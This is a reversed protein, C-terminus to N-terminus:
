GSIVLGRVSRPSRTLHREPWELIQRIRLVTWQLAEAMDLRPEMRFFRVTDAVTEPTSTSFYTKKGVRSLVRGDGCLYFANGAANRYMLALGRKPMTGLLTHLAHTFQEETRLAAHMM